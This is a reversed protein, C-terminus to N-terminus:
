NTEKEIIGDEELDAITAQIQNVLDGYIFETERELTNIAQEAVENWVADIEDPELDREEDTTRFEESQVFFEKDWWGIIVKESPDYQSFHNIVEQATMAIM